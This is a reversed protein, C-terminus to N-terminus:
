LNETRLWEHLVGKEEKEWVNKNYDGMVPTTVYSAGAKHLMKELAGEYSPHEREPPRYIGVILLKDDKTHDPYVLAACHELENPLQVVLNYETEGPVTNRVLIVVGGKQKGSQRFRSSEPTYGEFRLADQKEEQVHTETIVAVHVGNDQLYQAIAAKKDNVSYVNLTM